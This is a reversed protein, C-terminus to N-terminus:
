LIELITEVVKEVSRGVTETCGMKFSLIDQVEIGYVIIEVPMESGYLEDGLHLTTFLDVGHSSHINPPKDGKSINVKYITGPESGTNLADVIIAKDYGRILDVLDISPMTLDFVDLGPRKKKLLNVVHIGAGDDCRLLNGIGIVVSKM